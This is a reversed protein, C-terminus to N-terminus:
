RRAPRCLVHQREDSPRRFVGRTTLAFGGSRISRPAYGPMARRDMTSPALASLRATRSV